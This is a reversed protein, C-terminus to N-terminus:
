ILQTSHLVEHNLGSGVRPFDRPLVDMLVQELKCGAHVAGVLFEAAKTLEAYNAAAKELARPRPPARPAEAPAAPAARPLASLPSLHIFRRALWATLSLCAVAAAASLAVRPTLTLQM